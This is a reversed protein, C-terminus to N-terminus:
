NTGLLVLNWSWFLIYIGTLAIFGWIWCNIKSIRWSMVLINKMKIKFLGGLDVKIWFRFKIKRGGNWKKLWVIRTLGWGMIMM